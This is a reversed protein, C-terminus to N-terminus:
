RRMYRCGNRSLSGKTTVMSVGTLIVISSNNSAICRDITANGLFDRKQIEFM